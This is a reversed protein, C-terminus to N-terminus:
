PLRYWLTGNAEVFAVVGKGKAYYLRRTQTTLPAASASQINDVRIVQEHATPGLVVSPLLRTGPYRSNTTDIPLGSNVVDVPLRTNYFSEWEVVANLPNGELNVEPMRLKFVQQSAVVSDTRQVRVTVSQYEPASGFYIGSAKDMQNVVEAVQYSRVKSNQSNGFRLVEGSRYGQWALQESSLRYQVPDKSCSPLFLSLLAAAVLFRPLCM